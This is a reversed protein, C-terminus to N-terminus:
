TNVNKINDDDTDTTGATDDTDMVRYDGRDTTKHCFRDCECLLSSAYDSWYKVTIISERPSAQTPTAVTFLVVGVLILFFAM